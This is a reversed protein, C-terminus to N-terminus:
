IKNRNIIKIVECYKNVKEVDLGSMLVCNGKKNMLIVIPKKSDEFPIEAALKYNVTNVKSFDHSTEHYNGLFAGYTSWTAYEHTFKDLEILKGNEIKCAYLQPPYASKAKTSLSLDVLIYTNDKDATRYYYEDIDCIYNFTFTKSFSFGSFVCKISSGDYEKITITSQDKFVKFGLAKRREEEKKIALKKNDIITQKEDAKASEKSHPFFRKLKSIETTASDLLNEEILKTIHNLRQDAPFSLILVQEKLSDIKENLFLVSDKSIQLEKELTQCKEVVELHKNKDIGCSVLVTAVLIFIFRKM